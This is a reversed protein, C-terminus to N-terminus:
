RMPCNWQMWHVSAPASDYGVCVNPEPHTGPARDIQWSMWGLGLPVNPDTYRVDAASGYFTTTTHKYQCRPGTYSTTVYKVFSLARYQVYVNTPNGSANWGVHSFYKPSDSQFAGYSHTTTTLDGCPIGTTDAHAATVNALASVGVVAAAIAARSFLGIHNKVRYESEFTEESL